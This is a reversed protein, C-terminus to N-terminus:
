EAAVVAREFVLHGGADGREAVAGELFAAVQIEGQAQRLWRGVPERESQQAAERQGVPRQEDEGRFRMRRLRDRRPARAPEADGVGHLQSRRGEPRALSPEPAERQRSRRSRARAAPRRRPPARRPTAGRCGRGRSGAARGSLSAGVMRAGTTNSHPPPLAHHDRRAPLLPVSLFTRAGCPLSGPLAQAGYPSPCPWLSCVARQGLPLPSVTPYSGVARRTVSAARCGGTPALGLLCRSGARTARAAPLGCSTAPSLWGLSIVM